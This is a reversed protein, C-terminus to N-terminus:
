HSSKGRKLVALQAFPNPAAEPQAQLNLWWAPEAAGWAAAAAVGALAGRM